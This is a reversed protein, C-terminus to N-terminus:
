EGGKEKEHNLLDYIKYKVPYDADVILQCAKNTDANIIIPAKLNISIKEIDEPVTVTSLIFINEETLDGLVKLAEDNIEPAYDPVFKYPDVVPMAFGPEDMSQFWKITAKDGKEVDHILTFYKLDLFGIIGQEMVILKDEAVEIEGFLKTKAKM